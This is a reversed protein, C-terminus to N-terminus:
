RGFSLEILQIRLVIIDNYTIFKVFRILTKASAELNRAVKSRFLDM